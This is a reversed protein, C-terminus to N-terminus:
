PEEGGSTAPDPPLALAAQVIELANECVEDADAIAVCVLCGEADKLAKELEEVRARLLDRDSRLAAIRKRVAETSTDYGFDAETNLGLESFLTINEALEMRLSEALDDREAVVEAHERRATSLQVLAVELEMLAEIVEETTMEHDDRWFQGGSFSITRECPKEAAVNNVTESM